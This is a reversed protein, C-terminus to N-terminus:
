KLMKIKLDKQEILIEEDNIKIIDKEDNIFVSNVLPSDKRIDVGVTYNKVIGSSLYKIKFTGCLTGNTAIDFNQSKKKPKVEKLNDVKKEKAIYKSCHASGFCQHFYENCFGNDYHICKNKSRRPDNEHKRITEIHWPTGQIKGFRKM